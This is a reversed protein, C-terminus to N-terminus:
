GSGSDRASRAASASSHPTEDSQRRTPHPASSSISKNIRTMRSGPSTMMLVGGVNPIYANSQATFAPTTTSTGRNPGSSPNRMSTAPMLSATAFCLGFSSKRVDGLLGSPETNGSSSRSSSKFSGTKITRSSAYMSNEPIALERILSTSVLSLRITNLVKELRAASAPMRTPYPAKGFPMTSNMHRALCGYLTETAASTAAKAASLLGSYKFSTFSFSTLSRSLKNLTRFSHGNRLGYGDAAFKMRQRTSPRSASSTFSARALSPM